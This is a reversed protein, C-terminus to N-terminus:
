RHYPHRHLISWARYLQEAVIVRVLPHPFTLASLSWKEPIKELMNKAIGEPGGIWISIETGLNQWRQLQQALALTDWSKGTRDLAIIHSRPSTAALLSETEKEQIIESPLKQANLRSDVEILKLSCDGIIRKAYEQYGTQIWEPMKKGIAILNIRM